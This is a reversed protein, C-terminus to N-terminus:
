NDVSQETLIRFKWETDDAAAEQTQKMLIGIIKEAPDAFYQTNFYGGWGFSGKSGLGGKDQGQQTVLAFALGFTMDSRDGWLNGIQNALVVQVTTRSLIRNGNLEGGNLVMQLFRAYDVATSSLGAGGSFFRKAGDKPYDPDYFTCPFPIWREKERKQVTVLRNAKELILYFGTDKM